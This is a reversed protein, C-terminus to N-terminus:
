DRDIDGADSAVCSGNRYPRGTAPAPEAIALWIAQMTLDSRESRYFAPGPGHSTSEPLAAPRETSRERQALSSLSIAPWQPRISRAFWRDPDNASAIARRASRTHSYQDRGAIVTDTSSGYCCTMRMGTETVIGPDACEFSRPSPLLPIPSNQLSGFALGTAVLALLLLLAVFARSLAGGLPRLRSGGRWDPAHGAVRTTATLAATQTKSEARRDIDAWLDPVSVTDLRAFRARLSDMRM